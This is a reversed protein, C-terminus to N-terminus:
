KTAGRQDNFDDGICTTWVKPIRAVEVGYM